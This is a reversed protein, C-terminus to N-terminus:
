KNHKTGQAVPLLAHYISRVENTIQQSANLLPQNSIEAKAMAQDYPIIGLFEFGKLGSTIFETESQNHVKNGVVAINELGIDKALKAVRYATEISARSPEVVV